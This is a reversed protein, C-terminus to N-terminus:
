RKEVCFTPLSTRSSHCHPCRAPRTYRRRKRFVFGCEFCAAPEIVLREGGRALSRGLHELHDAVDREPIGVRRSLDRATAPGERLVRRLAERVTEGAATM